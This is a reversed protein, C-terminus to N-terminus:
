DPVSAQLAASKAAPQSNVMCYLAGALVLGVAWSIDAGLWNAVFGTYFSLKMFPITGIISVAYVALTRRNFRGYRGKANYLEGVEYHGRCVWYYDALNIASWPILLYLQGILIDAFFTDFRYQTAIAILTAAVTLVAMILAKASATVHRLEGFAGFITVSSMYASYLCLVNYQIVGLAIVGLALPAWPGFLTAIATAPDHGLASPIAVALLAGLAMMAFSGLACGCYTTWFTTRTNVNAPLYRSYDAVYPGYGLTWSAAQAVVLNFATWSFGSSLSTSVGAEGPHLLILVLAGGFVLTSLLSMWAGLRHILEYGIFGIVFTLVGVLIIAQDDSIPLLAKLADRMLVGSAALFLVAATVMVLLPIAAGHVGFQARSQIMQPVGLHPGQASHAAMFITGVLNGVLLGLLTWAFSLGSAIGLTGVMLATVQFNSSFWITFLRKPSGYREAHPVFEISRTELKM